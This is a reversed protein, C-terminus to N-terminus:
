LDSYVKIVWVKRIRIHYIFLVSSLSLSPTPNVSFSGVIDCSRGDALLVSSKSSSTDLSDFLSKKGTMHASTGSDIVWSSPTLFAEHEKRKPRPSARLTM